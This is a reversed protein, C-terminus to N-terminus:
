RLFLLYKFFFLGLLVFVWPPLPTPLILFYHGPQAQVCLEDTQDEQLVGVGKYSTGPSRVGRTAKDPEQVYMMCMFECTCVCACLFLSLLAM